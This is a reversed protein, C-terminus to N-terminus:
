LLMMGVQSLWDLKTLADDAEGFTTWQVLSEPVKLYELRDNLNQRAALKNRSYSAYIKPFTVPRLLPSGPDPLPIVASESMHLSCNSNVSMEQPLSLCAMRMPHHCLHDGFLAVYPQKKRDPYCLGPYFIVKSRERNQSTTEHQNNTM